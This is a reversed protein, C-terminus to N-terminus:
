ANSDLIHCIQATSTRLTDFITSSSDSLILSFIMNWFMVNERRVPDKLHSSMTDRIHVVGADCGASAVSVIRESWHHTCHRNRILLFAHILKMWKTDVLIMRHDRTFKDFNRRHFTTVRETHIIYFAITATLCERCHDDRWSSTQHVSLLATWFDHERQLHQCWM